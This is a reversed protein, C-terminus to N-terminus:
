LEMIKYTLGIKKNTEWVGSIKIVTHKKKRNINNHLEKYVRIQGSSLQKSLVPDIIRDKRIYQKFHGLISQELLKLDQIITNNLSTNVINRIFIENNTTVKKETTMPLYIYIGNLTINEKSFLIKTFEGDIITNKKPYLYRINDKIDIFQTDNKLDSLKLYVNM